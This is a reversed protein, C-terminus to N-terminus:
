YECSQSVLTPEPGHFGDDCHGAQGLAKAPGARQVTQIQDDPGAFDMAEQTGVPSPLGGGDADQEAQQPGVGSAGLQEAAIGPAVGDGQV